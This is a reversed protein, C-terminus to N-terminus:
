VGLGLKFLADANRTTAAAVEDQPVGLTEAAARLMYGLNAPRNVKEEVEVPPMDPSDTELLLADPYIADLLAARKTSNRYTLSRGMSFAFGLERLKEADQLSGSYAHVIGGAKPAGVRQLSGILPGFAGRCHVVIPLNLENALELQREFFRVQLDFDPTEIKADLGIEGVACAGAQPADRLRELADWHPDGVFWPHVGWAFAVEPHAQALPLQADWDAPEVANSILRAIGTERAEALVESERGAFEECVLHCHADVLRM